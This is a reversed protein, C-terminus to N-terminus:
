RIQLQKITIISVNSTSWSYSTRYGSEENQYTMVTGKKCWWLGEIDTFEMTAKQMPESNMRLEVEVKTPYITGDYSYSIHAVATLNADTVGELKMNERLLRYNSKDFYLEISVSHPLGALLSIARSPEAWAFPLLWPIVRLESLYTHADWSYTIPLKLVQRGDLEAEELKLLNAARVFARRGIVFESPPLFYVGRDYQSSVQLEHEEIWKKESLRRHLRLNYRYDVGFHNALEKRALWPLNARQIQYLIQATSRVEEPLADLDPAPFHKALIDAPRVESLNAESEDSLKSELDTQTFGLVVLSLILTLCLWLYLGSKMAKM